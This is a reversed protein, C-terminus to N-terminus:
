LADDTVGDGFEGARPIDDFRRDSIQGMVREQEQVRGAGTAAFAVFGV